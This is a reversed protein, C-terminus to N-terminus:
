FNKLSEVIRKSDNRVQEEKANSALYHLDELAKATDGTFLLSRGRAFKVEEWDPRNSLLVDFREVAKDYQGTQFSMMGLNYLAGSHNPDKELVEKLMTIGTMPSEKGENILAVAEEVREDLSRDLLAAEKKEESHHPLGALLLGVCGVALILILQKLSISV